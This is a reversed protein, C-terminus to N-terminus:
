RMTVHEPPKPLRNILWLLFLANFILTFPIVSINKFFLIITWESAQESILKGARLTVYLCTQYAIHDILRNILLAIFLFAVLNLLLVAWQLRLKQRALQWNQRRSRKDTLVTVLKAIGTRVNTLGLAYLFILLRATEVVVELLINSGSSIQGFAGIQTARGLAAFLGLGFITLFHNRFFQVSHLTWDLRSSLKSPIVM